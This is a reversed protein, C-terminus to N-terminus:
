HRRKPRGGRPGNPMPNRPTIIPSSTPNAKQVVYVGDERRAINYVPIAVGESLMDFYKPSIGTYMLVNGGPMMQVEARTVVVDKMFELIHDLNSHIHNQPIAFRGMCGIRSDLPPIEREPEKEKEERQENVDIPEGDTGVVKSSKGSDSMGHRPPKDNSVGVKPPHGEIGMKNDESM